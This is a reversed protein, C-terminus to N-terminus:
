GPFQVGTWKESLEWLKRAAAEDLAAPAPRVRVADGRLELFGGPGFYDGQQATPDTAARLAPEAGRATSQGLIRDLLTKFGTTGHPNTSSQGPHSALSLMDVGASALRRALEQTFLLNALKSRGYAKMPHYDKDSRVDAFSLGPIKHGNSSMTVVRGGPVKSILPFLLGSLAFHGLHNIAFHREFGQKSVGYPLMMVGANNILLDLHDYQELVEAACKTVSNLNGLDLYYHALRPSFKQAFAEMRASANGVIIVTAGHQTLVRTIEAGLGHDGGTVLAVRGAM